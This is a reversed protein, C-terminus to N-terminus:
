LPWNWPHVWTMSEKMNEMQELTMWEDEVSISTGYFYKHLM